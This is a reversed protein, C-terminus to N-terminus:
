SEIRAHATARNQRSAKQRAQCTPGYKECAEHNEPHSEDRLENIGPSTTQSATVRETAEIEASNNARLQTLIMQAPQSKELTHTSKLSIEALDLWQPLALM